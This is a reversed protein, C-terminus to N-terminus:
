LWHQAYHLLWAHDVQPGVTSLWLEVTKEGAPLGDFTITHETDSVKASHLAYETSLSLKVAALM